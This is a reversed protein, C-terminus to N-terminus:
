EAQKLLDEVAESPTSGTGQYPRTIKAEFHEFGEALWYRYKEWKSPFMFQYWHTGDKMCKGTTLQLTEFDDGCRAILQELTENNM